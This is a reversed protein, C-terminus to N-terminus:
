IQPKSSGFSGCPDVLSRCSVPLHCCSQCQLLLMSFEFFYFRYRVAVCSVMGTLMLFCHILFFTSPFFKVLFLCSLCDWLFYYVSLGLISWGWQFRLWDLPILLYNDWGAYNHAYQVERERMPKWSAWTKKLYSVM